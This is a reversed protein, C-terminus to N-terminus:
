PKEPSLAETQEESTESEANNGLPINMGSLELVKDSGFSIAAYSWGSLVQQYLTNEDKSQDLHFLSRSVLWANIEINLRMFAGAYEQTEADKFESDFAETKQTVFSLYDIRQLASLESLEVEEGNYNFVEKKLFMIKVWLFAGNGLRLIPTNSNSSPLIQAPLLIAM